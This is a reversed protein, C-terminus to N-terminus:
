PRDCNIEVSSKTTSNYKTLVIIPTHEQRGPNPNPFASTERIGWGAPRRPIVWALGILIKIRIKPKKSFSRGLQAWAFNTRSFLISQVAFVHDLCIWISLIIENVRTNNNRTGFPRSQASRDTYFTTEHPLM